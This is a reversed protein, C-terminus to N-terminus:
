KVGLLEFEFYLFANPPIAGPYGEAGYALEPPSVMRRKEGVQMQPVMIDWSPILNGVGIPVVLPEKGVSSDFLSGDLFKGTYHVTVTQGKKPTAGAGKKVVEFLIGESSMSGNPILEKAKALDKAQADSTESKKKATLEASISNFTAQDAKFANAADGKRIIQLSEIKDGQKIANVVDLGSVVRGFVTHKGDLHPTAKHTIFFQSGNTGAGANAMSLIGPGDHKLSSDFEDAFRYGPGGRGSGEPDGGQIMFDAIVRHFTLGDYYRQGKRVTTDMSGEALGVFNIVTLPTKQFELSLLIDGKTTKMNAYLGDPKDSMNVGGFGSCGATGLLFLMALVSFLVRVLRNYMDPKGGASITVCAPFDFL